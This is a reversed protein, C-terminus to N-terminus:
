ARDRGAGGYAVVAQPYGAVALRRQQFDELRVLTIGDWGQDRTNGGAVAAWEDGTDSTWAAVTEHPVDLPAIREAGTDLDLVSLNPAGDANGFAGTGVTLLRRGALTTGHAHSNATSPITSSEGTLPDLRVVVKGQVPLLISGDPEVAGYHIKEWSALGGETGFPAIEHTTARLSAPDVVTVTFSDHDITAVWSGDPAVVVDFPRWGVKVSGTFAGQKVDFVELHTTEVDTLVAVYVASGDPAVDLGLGGPRYEGQTIRQAPHLYPILSRRTFTALDVVALGEATAVYAANGAEHVGIGWPAAGVTLFEVANPDQNDPDIRAIKDTHALTALLFKSTQGEAPAPTQSPAPATASPRQSPSASPKEPVPDAATCGAMALGTMGALGLVTRRDLLARPRKLNSFDMYNGGNLSPLVFGDLM